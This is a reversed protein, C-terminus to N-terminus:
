PEPERRNGALRLLGLALAAFGACFLYVFRYDLWSTFAGFMLGALIGSVAQANNFM